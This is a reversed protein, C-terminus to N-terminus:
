FINEGIKAAEPWGAAIATNERCSRLAFRTVAYKEGRATSSAASNPALGHSLGGLSPM